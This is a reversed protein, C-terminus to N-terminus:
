EKGLIACGDTGVLKAHKPLEREPRGCFICVFVIVKNEDDLSRAFLHHKCKEELEIM